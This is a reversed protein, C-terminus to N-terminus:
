GFVIWPWILYFQEEMCLSWFHGFYLPAKPYVSSLLQADSMRQYVTDPACSHFFCALNGLYTPWLLWSWDWQWRLWPYSFILLLIVGYYLPFIRLTRRIYFDRARHLEDRADWLIGTILFGSLVFFLDVGAWGWPLLTYHFGFVMLFALTRLGDLAPFYARNEPRMGSVTGTVPELVPGGGAM